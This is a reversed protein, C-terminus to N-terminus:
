MVLSWLGNRVVRTTPRLPTIPSAKVWLWVDKYTKRYPSAFLRTWGAGMELPNTSQGRLGIGIAGDSDQGDSSQCAQYPVNNCFGMRAWNGGHCQINFGPRQMPCDRYSGITPAFADLIGDRDLSPDRLYGASFLEKASAWETTFNHEVCNSVPSGVCMRIRSFSATLYSMYKANETLNGPSGENLLSDDEWYASSYGLINDSAIKGM